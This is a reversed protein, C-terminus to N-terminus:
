DETFDEPIAMLGRSICEMAQEHERYEAKHEKPDLWDWAYTLVHAFEHALTQEMDYDFEGDPSFDVPDLVYIFGRRASKWLSTEGLRDRESMKRDRSIIVKIDWDQILCCRQWQKIRAELYQITKKKVEAM